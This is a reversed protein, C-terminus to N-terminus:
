PEENTARAPWSEGSLPPTVSPWRREMGRQEWAYALGLLRGDDFPRGLLDMGVPVGNPADATPMSYGVPITLGPLMGVSALYGNRQNNPQGHPAVLISQLPYVLADLSEADMVGVLIKRFAHMRLLSEEYAARYEPGAHERRIMTRPLIDPGYTGRDLFSQFDHFEADPGLEAFWQNFLDWAEYIDSAADEYARMDPIVVPVVTAGLAAMRDLAEQFVRNVEQHEPGSGLFETVVGLRAGRLANEDLYATYTEPVEGLSLRTLFDRPDFGAVADLVYAMDRVSRTLPGCSNHSLSSPIVGACSILGISNKIGFLGGASAPSRVSQGNDTGFGLLAFNASLAAGTGASSQGPTRTLDWPNLTRGGLPSDLSGAVLETLNTKGLVIAGARRLRTVVEAERAPRLDKLGISGGTTPMDSTNYNDKMVVPIGHLPSRPGRTRREEDLARAEALPDPHLSIFANITPGQNEYAEIRALYMRMLAESTLTGADFARNISEVTATELTFGPEPPPAAGRAQGVGPAASWPGLVAAGLLLARPVATRLVSRLM